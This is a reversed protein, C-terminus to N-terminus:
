ITDLARHVLQGPPRCARASALMLVALLAPRERRTGQDHVPNMRSPGEGFYLGAAPAGTGAYPRGTSRTVARGFEDLSWSGDVIIRFEYWRREVSYQWPWPGGGGNGIAGRYGAAELLSAAQPSYSGLPWAYFHIPVGYRTELVRKSEIIESRLQDFSLRKVDLHSMGHSGIENGAAVM